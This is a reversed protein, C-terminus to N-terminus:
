RQNKSLGHVKCARPSVARLHGFGATGGELNSSFSFTDLVSWGAEFGMQKMRFLKDTAASLIMSFYLEQSQAYLGPQYVSYIQGGSHSLSM